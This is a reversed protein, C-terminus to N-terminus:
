PRGWGAEVSVLRFSLSGSSGDLTAPFTDLVGARLRTPTLPDMPITDYPIPGLSLPSDAVGPISLTVFTGTDPRGRDVGLVLSLTEGDPRGLSQFLPADGDDWILVVKDSALWVSASRPPNSPFQPSIQRALPAQAIPLADGDAVALEAVKVKEGPGLFLDETQVEVTAVLHRPFLPVNVGIWGRTGDAPSASYGCPLPGSALLGGLPVVSLHGQFEDFRLQPDEAGFPCPTGNPDGAWLTPAAALGVILCLIRTSM